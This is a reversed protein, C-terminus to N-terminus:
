CAPIPTGVFFSSFIGHCLVISVVGDVGFSLPFQFHVLTISFSISPNLIPFSFFSVPKEEGDGINDQEKRLGRELFELDVGEEDEPVARLRGKFGADEFIPCALFYCPAVCWVSRTYEPDTFSSLINAISQSAGGTICIESPNAATKRTTGGRDPQQAPGHHSHYHYHYAKGLWVALEERLPQYGPDPGYQLAPVFISPDSLVQNAAKKLLSSPLLHPSPWGRLLNILKKTTTTTTIDEDEHTKQGKGQAQDDPNPSTNEHNEMESVKSNNEKSESHQDNTTNQSYYYSAMSTSTPSEIRVESLRKNYNNRTSTLPVVVHDQVNVELHIDVSTNRDLDFESPINM